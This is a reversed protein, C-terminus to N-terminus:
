SKAKLGEEIAHLIKAEDVQTEVGAIILSQIKQVHSQLKGNFWNAFEEISTDENIDIGLDIIDAGEAPGDGSSLEQRSITAEGPVIIPRRAPFRNGEVLDFGLEYDTTIIKIGVQM